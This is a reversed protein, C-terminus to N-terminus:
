TLNSNFLVHLNFYFWLEKAYFLPFALHDGVVVHRCKDFFQHELDGIAFANVETGAPVHLQFNRRVFNFVLVKLNFLAEPAVPFFKTQKVM